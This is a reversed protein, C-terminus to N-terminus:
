NSFIEKNHWELHEKLPSSRKDLLYNTISSGQFPLFYRDTKTDFLVSESLLISYNLDISWIGKDFTYHHTPCLSLGNEVSCEGGRAKWKIHAAEMPLPHTNKYIKLGCVACRNDYAQMVLKPFNPDRKIRTVTTTITEPSIIQPVLSDIELKVLLDEHLTEPFNDEMIFDILYQAASKNNSLWNYVEDSFGAKYDNATADSSTIDGSKNEPLHPSETWFPSEKSDNCLRHLPQLCNPKSTLNTFSHILEELNKRDKQYNIWRVDTLTKTLAMLITLPKHPSYSSNFKNQNIKSYWEIFIDINM